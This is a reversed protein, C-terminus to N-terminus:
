SFIPPSRISYSHIQKKTYVVVRGYNSLACAINQEHESNTCLLDPTLKNVNNAKLDGIGFAGCYDSDILFPAASYDSAQSLQSTLVLALLGVTLMTILRNDKVTKTKGM